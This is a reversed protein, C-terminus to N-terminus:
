VSVDLEEVLSNTVSSKCYKWSSTSNDLISAVAEIGADDDVSLIESDLGADAGKIGRRVQAAAPGIGIDDAFQEAAIEIRDLVPGSNQRAGLDAVTDGHGATGLSLLISRDNGSLDRIHQDVDVM